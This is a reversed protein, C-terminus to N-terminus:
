VFTLMIWFIAGVVDCTLLTAKILNLLTSSFALSHHAKMEKLAVARDVNGLQRRIVVLRAVDCLWEAVVVSQHVLELITDGSDCDIPSHYDILWDRYNLGGAVIQIKLYKLEDNM